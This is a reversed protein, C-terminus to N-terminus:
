KSEKKEGWKGPDLGYITSIWEFQYGSPSLKTSTDSGFFVENSAVLFNVFPYKTNQEPSRFEIVDGIKYGPFDQGSIILSSYMGANMLNMNYQYNQHLTYYDTGQISYADYDILARCNLFEYDTYDTGTPSDDTDEWPNYPNFNLKRNYNLNYNTKYDMLALASLKMNIKGFIEKEGKSNKDGCLEKLVLGEWSYSFVIEHRYSYALKTCLEYSNECCQYIKLDNAIDTSTRIDKKGPYLIKIADDINDYETSIPTELFKIDSICVFEISLTLKYFRRSKIFIPIEYQIGNNKTDRFTITGTQQETVLKLADDSNDHWLDIEGTALRGGLYEIMHLSVVKYGKDTFPKFDVEIGVTNRVMSM